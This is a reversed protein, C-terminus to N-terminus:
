HRVTTMAAAQAGQRIRQSEALTNEYMQHAVDVSTPGNQPRQIRKAREIADFEDLTLTGALTASANAEDAPVDVVQGGRKDMFIHGMKVMRRVTGSNSGPAGAVTPPTAAAEAERGELRQLRDTIPSLKSDLLAGIKEFLDDMM